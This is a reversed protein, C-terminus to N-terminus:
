CYNINANNLRRFHYPHLIEIVMEATVSMITITVLLFFICFYVNVDPDGHQLYLEEKHM